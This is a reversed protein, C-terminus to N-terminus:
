QNGSGEVEDAIELATCEDLGQVVFAGRADLVAWYEVAVRGRKGDRRPEKVATELKATWPRPHAASM